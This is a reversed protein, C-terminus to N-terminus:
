KKYYNIFGYYAILLADVLGDHPVKKGKPVLNANPFLRRAANLATKKTDKTKKGEKLVVDSPQIVSAQWKKPAIRIVESWDNKFAECAMYQMGVNFGFNFNSKASTGFISHVDEILILDSTYILDKINSIYDKAKCSIDECNLFTYYTPYLNECYIQVCAGKSGPDIGLIRM